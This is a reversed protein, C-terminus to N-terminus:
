RFDENKVVAQLDVLESINVGIGFRGNSYATVTPVPANLSELVNNLYVAKAGIVYNYTTTDDITVIDTGTTVGLAANYARDYMAANLGTMDQPNGVVVQSDDAVSANLEGLALKACPENGCFADFNTESGGPNVIDEDIILLIAANDDADVPDTLPATSDQKQPLRRM